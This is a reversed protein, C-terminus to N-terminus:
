RKLQAQPSPTNQIVRDNILTYPLTIGPANGQASAQGNFSQHGHTSDGAFGATANLSGAPLIYYPQQSQTYFGDGYAVTPVPGPAEIPTLENKSEPAVHGGGRSQNNVATGVGGLTALNMQQQQQQFIMAQQQVALATYDPLYPIPAMPAQLYPGVPLYPRFSNDSTIQNGAQQTAAIQHGAPISGQFYGSALNAFYSLCDVCRCSPDPVLLPTAPQPMAMPFGSPYYPYAMPVMYQPGPFRAVNFPNAGNPLIPNRNPFRNSYGGRRSGRINPGSRLNNGTLAAVRNTTGSGPRNTNDSTEISTNSDKIVNHHVSAVANRYYGRGSHGRHYSQYSPPHSITNSRGTEAKTQQKNSRFQPATPSVDSTSDAGSDVVDKADVPIPSPSPTIQGSRTSSTSM